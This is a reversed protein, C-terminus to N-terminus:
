SVSLIYWTDQKDGVFLICAVTGGYNSSSQRKLQVTQGNSITGPSTTWAGSGIRYYGPQSVSISTPKNIGSITVVDSAYTTNRAGDVIDTFNFADPSTDAPTYDIVLTLSSLTLIYTEDSGLPDDVDQPWAVFSVGLESLGSVESPYRFRIGYSYCDWDQLQFGGLAVWRAYHSSLAVFGDYTAQGLSFCDFEAGISVWNGTTRSSFDIHVSNITGDKVADPIDFFAYGRGLLNNPWGDYFGLDLSSYPNAATGDGVREIGGSHSAPIRVEAGYARNATGYSLVIASALAACYTPFELPRRHRPLARRTYLWKALIGRMSFVALM